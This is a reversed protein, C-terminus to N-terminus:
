DPLKLQDLFQAATDGSTWVFHGNVTPWQNALAENRCARFMWHPGFVTHRSVPAELHENQVIAEGAILTAMRALAEAKTKPVPVAIENM